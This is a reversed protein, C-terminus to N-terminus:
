IDNNNLKEIHADIVALASNRPKAYRLLHNLKPTNNKSIPEPSDFVKPYIACLTGVDQLSLQSVPTGVPKSSISDKLAKLLFLREEQTGNLSKQRVEEMVQAQIMSPATIYNSNYDIIKIGSHPTHDIVQNGGGQFGVTQNGRGLTGV